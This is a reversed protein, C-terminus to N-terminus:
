QLELVACAGVFDGPFWTAPWSDAREVQICLVNDVGPLINALVDINLMEGLKGKTTVSPPNAAPIDSNDQHVLTGNLWVKITHSWRLSLAAVTYEGEPIAWHQRIASGLGAGISPYNFNTGIWQSDRLLSIRGDTLTSPMVPNQIRGPAVVAAWSTDNFSPNTWGDPPIKLYVAAAHGNPYTALTGRDLLDYGVSDESTTMFVTSPGSTASTLVTSTNLMLRYVLAGPIVGNSYSTIYGALLNQAGPVVLDTVDFYYVGDMGKQGPLPGQLARSTQQAGRASGSGYIQVENFWLKNIASWGVVSLIAQGYTGEVTPPTPILMDHRFMMYVDRQQINPAHQHSALSWARPLIEKSWGGWGYEAPLWASDDYAALWFNPYSSEPPNPTGFDATYDLAMAWHNRGGQTVTWETGQDGAVNPIRQGGIPNPGSEFNPTSPVSLYELINAVLRITVAESDLGLQLASLPDSAYNRVRYWTLGADYTKYLGNETGAYFVKPNLRAAMLGHTAGGAISTVQAFETSDPPKVYARSQDDAAMLEDTRLFHALYATVPAPSVAPYTITNGVSEVKVKADVDEVSYNHFNSLEIQQVKNDQTVLTGMTIFDDYTIWVYSGTAVRWQTIQEISGNIWNIPWSFNRRMLPPTAFADITLWVDGNYLGVAVKNNDVESVCVATVPSTFTHVLTPETALHDETLYLKGDQCGFYALGPCLRTVSIVDSPAVFTGWTLGGDASADMQGKAAVYLGDIQVEDEGTAGVVGLELENTRPGFPDTDGDTVTLTITSDPDDWQAQTFRTTFIQGTGSAGNTASWAYSVIAGDPDYSTGGDATVTYWTDLIGDVEFTESTVFMEFAAVPPLGLLYGTPGAGGECQLNTFGGSAGVEHSVHRVWYPRESPLDMKVSTIGISQGPYISPNLAVKLTLDDTEKNYEIMYRRAVDTCQDRTELFDSSLSHPVYIDNGDGDKGLKDNVAQVNAMVPTPTTDTESTVGVGKILAQNQIDKNSVNRTIDIIPIYPATLGQVGEAYHWAVNVSPVGLAPQRLVVGGIEFTRQGNKSSEDLKSVIDGPKTGVAVEYAQLTGYTIGDGDGANYRPVGARRMLDEWIQNDTQNSYTFAPTPPDTVLAVNGYPRTLRKSHGAANIDLIRPSYKRNDTEIEGKFVVLMVGGPGGYGMDIKILDHEVWFPPSTTGLSIQATPVAMDYGMEVRCSIVKPVLRDNIYVNVAPRQFVARALTAFQAAVM